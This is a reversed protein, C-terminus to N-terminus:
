AFISFFNHKGFGAFLAKRAEPDPNSQATLVGSFPGEFFVDTFLFSSM